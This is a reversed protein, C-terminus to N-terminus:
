VRIDQWGGRRYALWLWALRVAWDATMAWWVWDVPLGLVMITVYTAALRVAWSSVGGALMPSRTDGAGRLAGGFVGGVALFPQAFGAIRLLRTGIAVVGTDTTFLSVLPQPLLIFLAAMSLGFALSMRVAERVALVAREPSGRGLNQGVVISTAIAFGWAPMFSLSEAAATVEHAGMAVAGLQAVIFVGLTRALDTLLHEGAAPLALRALTAMTPREFDLWGRLHVRARTWGRAVVLITLAAGLVHATASATAAGAVGMRPFGLHGQILVFDAVVNFVGSAGALIMPTRTDGFGHMAGALVSRLLFLPAGLSIIRLYSVGMASVGPGLGTAGFIGPALLWMLGTVVIGLAFAVTTLQAAIRSAEDARGAGVRRSIMATAAVGVSGFVFLVFFYVQGGLGTASLAEAGLRGVFAVDVLWVMTHLSYELIAPWALRMIEARLVRALTARDAEGGRVTAPSASEPYESSM